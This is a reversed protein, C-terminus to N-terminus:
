TFNRWEEISIILIWIIVYFVVFIYSSNNKAILHRIELAMTKSFWEFKAIKNM